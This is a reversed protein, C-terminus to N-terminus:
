PTPIYGSVGLLQLLAADRICVKGNSLVDSNSTPDFGSSGGPQYSANILLETNRFNIRMIEM